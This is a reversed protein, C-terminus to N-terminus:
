NVSLIVFGPMKFFLVKWDEKREIALDSCKNQEFPQYGNQMEIYRMVGNDTAEIEPTANSVSSHGLFDLIDPTDQEAFRRLVLRPTEIPLTVIMAGLLVALAVGANQSCLTRGDHKTTEHPIRIARGPM